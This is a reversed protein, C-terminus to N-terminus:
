SQIWGTGAANVMPNSAREAGITTSPGHGTLVTYEEPLTYMQEVISQALIAADGGPLDTRGVSGQFLVDGGIVHKRQHDVFIVHGPAHGPAFRVELECQEWKLTSGEQLDATPPPPTDLPVGYMQAAPLAFNYTVVDAPHIRPSLGYRELMGACGMVHDLHGHTLLVAGPTAELEVLAREFEDWERPNSMGPDIVLVQAPAMPWLVTNEQFANFSLTRV